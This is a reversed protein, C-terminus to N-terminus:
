ELFINDVAEDHFIASDRRYYVPSIGVIQKFTRNFHQRNNFGVNIAIDVISLSSNKLLIRSKNIRESNIFNVITTNLHQKFLKGLYSPNIKTIESLIDLNLEEELHERIYACARRVYVIGTNIQHDTTNCHSICLLLSSIICDFLFDTENENVLHKNNLLKHLVEILPKVTGNDSRMIYTECKDVIRKFSDSFECLQKISIDDKHHNTGEFEVNLAHVNTSNPILKHPLLSNFLIFEGAKLIIVNESNDVINYFSVACKGQAIYILEYGSHSHYNMVLKDIIESYYFNIKLFGKNNILTKLLNSPNQM